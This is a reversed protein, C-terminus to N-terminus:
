SIEPNKLITSIAKAVDPSSRIHRLSWYIIGEVEGIKRTAEAAALIAQRVTYGPIGKQRYAALGMVIPRQFKSHWRRYFQGPAKSPDLGSSKTSYAQPVAYDCVEALPGLKDVPAYGIGNVGMKFKSGRFAEKILEAARTYSMRQRAQTWPEEADWQVSEAGIGHALPILERAAGEIYMSHPMIWSMLHVQIGADSAMKALMAIKSESRVDFPIPDRKASHDNVIIDFRNINHKLAFDIDRGPNALTSAGVWAGVVRIGKVKEVPIPPLPEVVIDPEDKAPHVPKRADDQKKVAEILFNLFGPLM